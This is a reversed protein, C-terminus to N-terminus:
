GNPNTLENVHTWGAADIGNVTMTYMDDAALLCLVMNGKTAILGNSPAVCVWKMWDINKEFDACVAAADAGEALTVVVLSYAQSMMMPAVSVANVIGESHSLGATAGFYEDATDIPSIGIGDLNPLAAGNLISMIETMMGEDIDGMVVPQPVYVEMDATMTQFYADMANFATTFTEPIEGTYNVSWVTGDAFEIYMSANADGDKYDDQGNLTALETKALEDALGTMVDASLNGIKKVDGIYEVYVSGDEEAFVSMSKINDYNEGMSLSFFTLQNATVDGSPETADPTPDTVTPTTEVPDTVSPKPDTPKEPTKDGCAALSMVMVLALVLSLIRIFKKM